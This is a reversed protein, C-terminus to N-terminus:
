PSSQCFRFCQQFSKRLLCLRKPVTYYFPAHLLDTLFRCCEFRNRQVRRIPDQRVKNHWVSINNQHFTSPISCIVPIYIYIDMSM